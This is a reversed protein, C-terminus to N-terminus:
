LDNPAQRTELMERITKALAAAAFPKQIYAASNGLEGYSLFSGDSYGSMFLVRMNPRSLILAKALDPGRMGPMVVDTLLLHIPERCESAMSMAESPSAAELINYGQSNLMERVLSRVADEDEVLLITETGSNVVSPMTAPAVEPEAEVMPLYIKFTTGKGPESYLRIAGGNQSVIGYVISLGLGTGKGKDKTTFFPEFLHSKTAADMGAGTDSIALMVYQGPELNSDRGPHDKGAELNATEITLKGGAPMADRANVALNMIVQDM